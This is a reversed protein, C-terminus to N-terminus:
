LVPREPARVSEVSDPVLVIERDGARLHGTLRVWQGKRPLEGRVQLTVRRADAICCVMALRSLAGAGDSVGVIEVARGNLAAPGLQSSATLVQLISVRGGSGSLLPNPADGLRRQPGGDAGTAALPAASVSPQQGAVGIWAAVPLLALLAMTATTQRGVITASAVVLVGAVGLAPLFWPRVLHGGVGTLAAVLFLVGVAVIAATRAGHAARSV